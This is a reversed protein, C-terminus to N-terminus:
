LLACELIKKFIALIDNCYTFNYCREILLLSYMFLPIYLCGADELLSLAVFMDSLAWNLLTSLTEDLFTFSFPL